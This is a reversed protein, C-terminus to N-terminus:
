KNRWWLRPDLRLTRALPEIARRFRTADVPYGATPRLGEIRRTWYANFADMWVERATKSVISALAVLGNSGDARPSLSVTMGRGPARLSYRSLEPGEVGRDIWTDPFAEVLSQLYYHRGGHKDCELYTPMGDGAQEWAFHLLERFATFHVRAKSGLEALLVNFREPGLVVARVAVIRWRQAPPELPKRELQRALNDLLDLTPWSNFDGPSDSDLWRALETDDITGAGITALFGALDRPLDYGAADVVALCTADLRERGHRHGGRLIAKSDDVWL